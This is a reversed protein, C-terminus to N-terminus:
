SENCLVAKTRAAEFSNAVDLLVTRTLTRQGKSPTRGAASHPATYPLTIIRNTPSSVATSRRLPLFFPCLLNGPFQPGHCPRSFFFSIPQLFHTAANSNKTIRIRGHCLVPSFVLNTICQTRSTSHKLHHVDLASTPPVKQQIM